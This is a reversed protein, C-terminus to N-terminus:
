AAPGDEVDEGLAASVGTRIAAALQGDLDLKAGDQDTVYFVDIVEAGLTSVRASDIAVGAGTLVSATRYLVPGRDPARVEVVTCSSALDNDLSVAVQVPRARKVRRRRAYAREREALREDLRLRGALAGELDARVQEWDPLVDLLPAVDLHLVAMPVGQRSREEGSGTTAARIRVGRLSLVGAVTALLGRRDPAVILVHSERSGAEGPVLALGGDAVLRREEESVPLPGPVPSRGALALDVREVLRRVLKAKWSGWASPGTALSDAETLTALLWLNTTDGVAAAVAEITHPDDLDRHSAVDPLLLHHRVMGVLRDTDAPDFGMRPALDRALEVGVDTHDGARGKGLDHLLCGVFLLDPRNVNRVLAAANAATELLHRDVTFRHLANRQPHNRVAEWEPLLRVWVGISDLAEVAGIMARGAGLLRVLASLLEPPWPVPPAPTEAALRDLTSRALPRDLEASAASARVALSVDEAPSAAATLAVEHDREVLGPELPEDRGGGRGRPGRLWSGVRRWADDNAWALTRAAHAVDAMLVDADPLDLAKAVLDQEQLLLVNGSRGTSRHLEVRAAALVEVAERLAPDAAVDALVPSVRATGDLLRLDRIGGRGEKLDPELLFAVDGHQDHRARAAEDVRPLWKGARRKWLDLAGQLAKAALAEDGAVRRATLLGLAVKLDGEMASRVERATRVSHDLHIGEDWIPYWVGDAVEAIQGPKRDHVLLLDLDSGPAMEGLGYGGVALLAIGGVDGGTVETVLGTLWDDCAASYARCWAEGTLSRDAVLDDHRQRLSPAPPV